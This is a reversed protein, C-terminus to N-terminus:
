DKSRLSIFEAAAGIAYLEAAFAREILAANTVAPSDAGSVRDIPHVAPLAHGAVAACAISVETYRVGVKAAPVEVGPNGAWCVARLLL